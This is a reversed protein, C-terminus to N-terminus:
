LNRKPEPLDAECEEEQPVEPIESESLQKSINNFSSQRPSDNDDVRRLLTTTHTSTRKM